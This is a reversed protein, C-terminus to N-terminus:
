KSQPQAPTAPTTAPSAPPPPPPLPATPKPATGPAAPTAPATANPAAAPAPPAPPKPATMVQVPSGPAGPTGNPPMPHGGMQMNPRAPPVPADTMDVLTVDFILDSKAPIGPHDPGHDPMERTGYALQWPIFIRRTGGVKMGVFGQDFGIITGGKGQPFPMPQPDGLKPKGDDGLVQKGDKDRMPQRHLDSSDFIVGDSARYGTYLVKYLKGPEAVAGKGVLTDQYRLAVTFISKQPITKYQQKIAAPTKIVAAVLPNAAPVAPKAAPAATSSKASSAATSAPKAAAAAPPAPKAPTQASAALASAALMLILATRKMTNEFEQHHMHSTYCASREKQM